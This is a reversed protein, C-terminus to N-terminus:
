SFSGVLGQVVLGWGDVLVFLLLKLPLSVMVPPLMFMGMSMLVSAAVVDIVVFPLFLAFGIQFATRLESTVFASILVALSVDEPGRPAVAPSSMEVFRVLDSERTQALMFERFPVSARSLMEVQEIEGDMWPRVAEVHVTQLTPGMVFVTLLLALSALLHGPPATQTGLAQRLLHLVILIRTFSTMLLVLTPLLALVGMFLAVGMAGDVRLEPTDDGGALGLQEALQQMEETTIPEPEQAEAQPMGATILTAGVPVAAMVDTPSGAVLAVIITGLVTLHPARRKRRRNRPETPPTPVRQTAGPPVDALKHVGGEGVSVAIVQAGIRVVAVGQKYGLSTRGLVEVKVRPGRALRNPFARLAARGRTGFVTILLSGLGLAVAVVGLALM